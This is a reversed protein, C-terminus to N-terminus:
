GLNKQLVISASWVEHSATLPIMERLYMWSAWCRPLLTSLWLRKTEVNRSLLVYTLKAATTIWAKLKHVSFPRDSSCWMGCFAQRATSSWLLPWLSAPTYRDRLRRWYAMDIALPDPPPPSIWDLGALSFFVWMTQVILGSRRQMSSFLPSMELHILSTSSNSRVQSLRSSYTWSLSPRSSVRLPRKLPCFCRAFQTPWFPPM